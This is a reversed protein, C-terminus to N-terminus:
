LGHRSKDVNFNNLIDSDTLAETSVRIAGINMKAYYAANLAGAALMAGIYTIVNKDVINGAQPATAVQVGNIYMKVNAGDYTVSVFEWNGFNPAVGFYHISSGTINTQLSFGYEGGRTAVNRILSYSENIGFSQRHSIISPFTASGEAPWYVWAEITIEDGTIRLDNYSAPLSIYNSSANTLEFDENLELADDNFTVSGVLSADNGNGSLDFWDTGTEPYSTDNTADLHLVNSKLVLSEKGSTLGVIFRRLSM